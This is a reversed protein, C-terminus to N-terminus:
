CISGQAVRRERIYDGAIGTFGVTLAILGGFIVFLAAMGPSDAEQWYIGNVCLVWGIPACTAWTARSRLPWTALLELFRRLKNM